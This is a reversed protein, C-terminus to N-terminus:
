GAESGGRASLKFSGPANRFVKYKYKADGKRHVEEFVEQYFKKSSTENQLYFQIIFNGTPTKTYVTENKKEHRQFYNKKIFKRLLKINKTRCITKIPFEYNGYLLPFILVRHVAHFFFEEIEILIPTKAM